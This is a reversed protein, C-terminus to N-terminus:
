PTGKQESVIHKLALTAASERRFVCVLGLAITLITSLLNSQLLRAAGDRSVYAPAQLVVLLDAIVRLIDPVVSILLYFGFLVLGLAAWKASEHLCQETKPIAHLGRGDRILYFGLVMMILPILMSMLASVKFVAHLQGWESLMKLQQPIDIVAQELAVLLCYVGLLKLGIEFRDKWAM